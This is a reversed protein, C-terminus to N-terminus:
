FKLIGSFFVPMKPIVQSVLDSVSVCCNYYFRSYDINSESFVSVELFPMNLHCIFYGDIAVTGYQDGIIAIAKRGM